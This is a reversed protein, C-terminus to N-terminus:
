GLSIAQTFITNFDPAVALEIYRIARVGKQVAERKERSVLAIKAGAGAANGVQRFRSAPIAPLMGIAIASSINLYSGFAGAVVVEDLDADSLKKDRLLIQIGSRIAAQALQLERVDSQTITIASGGTREEESVIV